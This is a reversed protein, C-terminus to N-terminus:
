ADGHHRRRRREQEAGQPGHTPLGGVDYDGETAHHM